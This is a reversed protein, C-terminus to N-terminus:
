NGTLLFVETKLISVLLTPQRDVSVACYEQSWLHSRGALLGKPHDNLASLLKRQFVKVQWDSTLSAGCTQEVWSVLDFVCVCVYVSLSLCNIARALKSNLFWM